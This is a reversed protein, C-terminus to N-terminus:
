GYTKDAREDHLNVGPQDMIEVRLETWRAPSIGTWFEITGHDARSRARRVCSGVHPPIVSDKPEDFIWIDFGDRVLTIVPSDTTWAQDWADLLCTRAFREVYPIPLSEEDGEGANAGLWVIPGVLVDRSTFPPLGADIWQRDLFLSSPRNVPLSEIKGEENCYAFWGVDGAPRPVAELYGGVLKQLGELDPKVSVVEFHHPYSVLVSIAKPKM